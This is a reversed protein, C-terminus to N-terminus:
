GDMLRLPTPRKVGILPGTPRAIVGRAPTHTACHLLVQLAAGTTVLSLLLAPLLMAAIALPDPPLLHPSAAALARPSAEMHALHLTAPSVRTAEAM